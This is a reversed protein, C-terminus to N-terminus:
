LTSRGAFDTALVALASDEARQAREMAASRRPPIWITLAIWSVCVAWATIAGAGTGFASALLAFLFTSIALLPPVWCFFRDRDLRAQVDRSYRLVPDALRLDTVVQGNRVAEIVLPVDETAVSTSIPTRGPGLLALTVAVAAGLALGEVAARIISDQRILQLATLVLSTLLGFTVM